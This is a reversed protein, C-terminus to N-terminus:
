PGYNSVHDGIISYINLFVHFPQHELEVRVSHSSEPQCLAKASVQRARWRASRQSASTVQGLVSRVDETQPRSRFVQRSVPLINGYSNFVYVSRICTEKSRVSAKSDDATLLAEVGGWAKHTIVGSRVEAPQHRQPILFLVTPPRLRQNCHINLLWYSSSCSHGCTQGLLHQLIEVFWSNVSKACFLGTNVAFVQVCCLCLLATIERFSVSLDGRSEFGSKPHM